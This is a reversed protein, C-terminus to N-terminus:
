NEKGSYQSMYIVGDLFLTLSSKIAVFLALYETFLILWKKVCKILFFLRIRRSMDNFSITRQYKVKFCRFLIWLQSLGQLDNFAMLLKYFWLEVGWFIYQLIPHPQIIYKTVLICIMPWTSSYYQVCCVMQLFSHFCAYYFFVNKFVYTSSTTFLILLFLFFINQIIIISSTPIDFGRFYTFLTLITSIQSFGSSRHGKVLWISNPHVM